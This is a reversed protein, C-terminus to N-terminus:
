EKESKNQSAQSVQPLPHAAIILRHERGGVSHADHYRAALSTVANVLERSFAAREAASRFRLTTDISLTAVHKKQTSAGRVLEAVERVIRAGLAILYGASLRDNGRTPDAAAAGLAAPSVVYSSASAVLMREEIGGWFRTEAVSVFKHAELTRLHYNLKQRAVGLRAALTAASAPEALEALLRSRVPDLAVIAAAPDDIVAVDLM